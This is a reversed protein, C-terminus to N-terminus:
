CERFPAQLTTSRRAAAHPGGLAGPSIVGFGVRARCPAVGPPLRVRDPPPMGQVGGRRNRRRREDRGFDPRM